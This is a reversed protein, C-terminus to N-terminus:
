ATSGGPWQCPGDHVYACLGRERRRAAEQAVEPAEAQRLRARYMEAQDAPLGRLIRTVEPPESAPVADRDGDASM